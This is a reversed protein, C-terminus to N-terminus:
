SPNEHLSRKRNRSIQSISEPFFDEPIFRSNLNLRINKSFISRSDPSKTPSESRM